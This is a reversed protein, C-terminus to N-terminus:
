QHKAMELFRDHEKQAWQAHDDLRARLVATSEQLTQIANGHSVISTQIPAVQSILVALAKTQEAMALAHEDLRTRMSKIESLLLKFLFGVALLLAPAVISTLVGGPTAAFSDAFLM